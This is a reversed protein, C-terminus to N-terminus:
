NSPDGCGCDFDLNLDLDRDLLQLLHYIQQNNPNRYLQEKIYIEVIENYQKQDLQKGIISNLLMNQYQPSQYLLNKEFLEIIEKKEAGQNLLEIINFMNQKALYTRLLQKIGDNM